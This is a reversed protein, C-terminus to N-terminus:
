SRCKTWHFWEPRRSLNSGLSYASSYRFTSTLPSSHKRTGDTRILTVSKKVGCPLVYEGNIFTAFGGTLFLIICWVLGMWALYPQLPSKWPLRDRTINQKKMGYYFRLYTACIVSWNVLAAAAVLSQLWDFVTSAGDSLSMFGLCIFLALFIVAM